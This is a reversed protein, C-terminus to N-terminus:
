GIMIDAEPLQIGLRTREGIVSAAVVLPGVRGVFMLGM